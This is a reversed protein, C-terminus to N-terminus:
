IHINITDEAAKRYGPAMLGADPDCLITLAWDKAAPLGIHWAVAQSRVTRHPSPRSAHVIANFQSTSCWYTNHVINCTGVRLHNSESSDSTLYLSNHLAFQIMDAMQVQVKNCISCSSDVSKVRSDSDQPSFRYVEFEGRIDDMKGLLFSSKFM